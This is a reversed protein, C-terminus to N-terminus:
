KACCSDCDSNNAPSYNLFDQIAFGIIGGIAPALIFIAIPWLSWSLGNAAFAIAPNLFTLATGSTTLLVTSLSMAVYLAVLIALGATLASAAKNGKIRLAKAVGLSLIITGLLEAFFIYWEKGETITAAQFLSSSSLTTATESANLFANLVLWAAGAGLVQVIVYGLAELGKIKKTVWAGITIAPNIHLGAAGSVILTIGVLSFAVFLPSSQMEMFAATLLFTGIFEATLRGIIPTEKIKKCVSKYMASMSKGTGSTAEITTKKVVPKAITTKKASSIAKKTAM